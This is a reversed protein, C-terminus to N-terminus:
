INKNQALNGTTVFYSHDIIRSQGEENKCYARIIMAKDLLYKPKNYGGM